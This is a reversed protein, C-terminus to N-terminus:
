LKAVEDSFAPVDISGIVCTIQHWPLFVIMTKPSSSHGLKQLADNTWSQNEVWMGADELKLLRVRQISTQHFFPSLLPIIEGELEKLSKM